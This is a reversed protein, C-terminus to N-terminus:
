PSAEPSAEDESNEERDRRAREGNRRSRNRGMDAAAMAIEARQEATLSVLLEIFDRHMIAQSEMTRTRLEALAAQLAENDLQERSLNQVVNQQSNRLAAVSVRIEQRHAEWIDRVLARAEPGAARGAWFVNYPSSRVIGFDSKGLVAHGIMLGGIFLNFGLSIIFIISWLRSRRKPTGTQLDDSSSM